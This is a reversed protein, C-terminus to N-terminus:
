KPAQLFAQKWARPRPSGLAAGRECIREGGWPVLQCREFSRIGKRYRVAASLTLLGPAARAASLRPQPRPAARTVTSLGKPSCGRLAPSPPLEPGAPAAAAAPMADGDRRKHVRAARATQLRHGVPRRKAAPARARPPAPGAAPGPRSGPPCPLASCTLPTPPQRPTM